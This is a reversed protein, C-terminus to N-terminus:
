LGAEGCSLNTQEHGAKRVELTALDSIDKMRIPEEWQSLWRREAPPAGLSANAQAQGCRHAGEAIWTPRTTASSKFPMM